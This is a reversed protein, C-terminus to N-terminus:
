LRQEMAIEEYTANKVTDCRLCRRSMAIWLLQLTVYLAIIVGDGLIASTVDVHMASVMLTSILSSIIIFDITFAIHMLANQQRTTM